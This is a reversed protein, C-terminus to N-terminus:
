NMINIDASQFGWKLREWHSNRNDAYIIFRRDVGGDYVSYSYVVNNKFMLEHDYEASM